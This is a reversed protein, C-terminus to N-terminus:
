RTRESPPYQEVTEQLVRDLAQVAQWAADRPSRQSDLHSVSLNSDDAEGDESMQLLALAKQPPYSWMEQAAQELSDRRATGPLLKGGKPDLGLLILQLLYLSSDEIPVKALRLWRKAEQNIPLQNSDEVLQPNPLLATSERM